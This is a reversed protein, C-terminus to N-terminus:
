LHKESQIYELLETIIHSLADERPIRITRSINEIDGQFLEIIRLMAEPDKQKAAQLLILFEHDTIIASDNKEEM